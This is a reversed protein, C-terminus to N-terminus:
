EDITLLVPRWAKKSLLSKYRFGSGAPRPSGPVHGSGNVGSNENAVSNDNHTEHNTIDEEGPPSSVFLDKLSHRRVLDDGKKELLCERQLMPERRRRAGGRRGLLM